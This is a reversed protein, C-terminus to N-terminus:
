LLELLLLALFNGPGLNFRRWLRLRVSWLRLLLGFLTRLLLRSIAGLICNVVILSDCLKRWLLPSLGLTRVVILRSPRRRRSAM